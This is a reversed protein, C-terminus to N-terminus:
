IDCAIYVKINALNKKIWDIVEDITKDDFITVINKDIYLRVNNYSQELVVDMIAGGREIFVCLFLTKQYFVCLFIVKKSFTNIKM